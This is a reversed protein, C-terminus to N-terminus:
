TTRQVPGSTRRMGEQAPRYSPNLSSAHAFAAFAKDRIGLKELALGQYTWATYSDKDRKVSENFDELAAKYDGTALYSLGRGEFPEANGPALSIAKTFDDIAQPHQGKAQYILGRNHFARPDNADLAIAQNFDALAQDIRNNQRYINGRGVYAVAYSNNIEIAKNYDALAREDHGLKRQVLARNAYAQYFGPNIKLATDFDAIAEKLKGARGYATGRVNYANADNPNQAIVSSLSGINAQSGAAPDVMDDPKGFNSPQTQCGAAVFLAAMAALRAGSVAPRERGRLAHRREPYGIELRM